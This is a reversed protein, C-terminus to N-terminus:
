SARVAELERTLASLASLVSVADIPAPHANAWRAIQNVNNGIAALQRLLAPDVSKYHHIEKPPNPVVGSIPLALFKGRLFDSLSKEGMDSIKQMVQQQELKTVRCKLYKDRIIKEPM